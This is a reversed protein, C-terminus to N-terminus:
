EESVWIVFALIGFFMGQTALVTQYSCPTGPDNLTSYAAWYGSVSLLIFSIVVCVLTWKKKTSM